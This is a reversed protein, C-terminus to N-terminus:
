LAEGVADVDVAVAVEVGAVDGGVFSDGDGGHVAGDDVEAVDEGGVLEGVDDVAGGVV